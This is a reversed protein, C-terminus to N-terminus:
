GDKRLINCQALFICTLLTIVTFDYDFLLYSIWVLLFTVLTKWIYSFEFLM